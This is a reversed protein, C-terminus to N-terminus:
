FIEKLKKKKSYSSKKVAKVKTAENDKQNDKKVQKEDSM